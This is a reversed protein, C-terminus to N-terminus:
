PLLVAERLKSLAKRLNIEQDGDSQSLTDLIEELARATGALENRLNALYKTARDRYERLLGRLTARSAALAEPTDTAVEQALKELYMRYPSCIEEDLEVTYNAINKIAFVYCDLVTSRLQHARELETVSSLISIM